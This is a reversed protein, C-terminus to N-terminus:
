KTSQEKFRLTKANFCSFYDNSLINNMRKQCYRTVAYQYSIFDWPIFLDGEETNYIKETGPVRGFLLAPRIARLDEINM